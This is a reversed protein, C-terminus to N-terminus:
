DDMANEEGGEDFILMGNTLKITYRYEEKGTTSNEYSYREIVGNLRLCVTDGERMGILDPLQSGNLDIFPFFGDGSALTKMERTIGVKEPMADAMMTAGRDQGKVNEIKPHSYKEVVTAANNSLMGKKGGGMQPVIAALFEGQDSM